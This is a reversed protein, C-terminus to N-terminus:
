SHGRQERQRGRRAQAEPAPPVVAGALQAEPVGVLQEEPAGDAVVGALHRRERINVETRTAGRHLDGNSPVSAHQEVISIHVRGAGM